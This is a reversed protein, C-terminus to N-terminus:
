KVLEYNKNKWNDLGDALTLANFFGMDFLRVGAQFAQLGNNDCLILKKGLPIDKKRKEIDNLFINIAGAIHGANFEASKRVDIIALNTETKMLEKLADTQIYTIKSQDTFSNVDGVSITQNYNTKWASFGGDLIYINKFGADSMIKTVLNITDLSSGSDIIIFTSDKNFIALAENINGISINKSNFIHETTYEAESRIDLLILEDKNQIKKALDDSSIKTASKLNNTVTNQDIINQQSSIDKPGSARFFTVGAIILILLFGVVLAVINNNSNKQM